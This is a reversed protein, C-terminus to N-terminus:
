KTKPAYQFLEPNKAYRTDLMEMLIKNSLEIHRVLDGYHHPDKQKYIKIKFNNEEIMELFTYEETQAVNLGGRHFNLYLELYAKRSSVDHPYSM